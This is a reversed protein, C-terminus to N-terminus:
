RGSRWRTARSRLFRCLRPLTETTVATVRFPFGTRPNGFGSQADACPDGGSARRKTSGQSRWRAPYAGCPIRRMRALRTRSGDNSAVAPGLGTGGADSAKSQPAESLAGRPVGLLTIAPTNGATALHRRDNRGIDVAMFGVLDAVGPSVRRRDVEVVPVAKRRHRELPRDLGLRLGARRCASPDRRVRVPRRRAHQVLGAAGAAPRRGLWAGRTRIPSRRAPQAM